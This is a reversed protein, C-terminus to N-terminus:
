KINKIQEPTKEVHFKWHPCKEHHCSKCALTEQALELTRTTKIIPVKVGDRCLAPGGSTSWGSAASSFHILLCVSLLILLNHTLSM